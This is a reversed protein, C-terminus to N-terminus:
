KCRIIFYFLSMKRVTDNILLFICFLNSQFHFVCLSFFFVIEMIDNDNCWTFQFRQNCLSILSKREKKDVYM